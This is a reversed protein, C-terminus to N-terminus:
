LLIAAFLLLGSDGSDARGTFYPMDLYGGKADRRAQPLKPSKFSGNHVAETCRNVPISSGDAAYAAKSRYWCEGTHMHGCIDCNGKGVRAAFARAGTKAEPSNKLQLYAMRAKNIMDALTANTSEGDASM